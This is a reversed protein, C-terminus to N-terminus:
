HCQACVPYVLVISNLKHRTPDSLNVTSIFVYVRTIHQQTYCAPPYASHKYGTHVLCVPKEVHRKYIIHQTSSFTESHPETLPCFHFLVIYINNFLHHHFYYMIDMSPYLKAIDKWSIFRKWTSYIYCEKIFRTQTKHYICTASYLNMLCKQLIM